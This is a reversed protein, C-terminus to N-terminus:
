FQTLPIFASGNKYDGRNENNWQKQEQSANVPSDTKKEDLSLPIIDRQEAENWSNNGSLHSANNPESIQLDRSTGSANPPPSIENVTRVKHDDSAIARMQLCFPSFVLTLLLTTSYFRLYAM